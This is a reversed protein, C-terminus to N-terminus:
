GRNDRVPWQRTEPHASVLTSSSTAGTASKAVLEKREYIRQTVSTLADLHTGAFQSWKSTLVEISKKMAQDLEEMTMAPEEVINTGKSAKM